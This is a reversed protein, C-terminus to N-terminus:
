RNKEAKEAKKQEKIWDAVEQDKSRWKLLNVLWSLMGWKANGKGRHKHLALTISFFSTNPPLPVTRQTNYM